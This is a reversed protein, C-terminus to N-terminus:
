CAAQLLAQSFETFDPMPGLPDKALEDIRRLAVADQWYMEQQFASVEEQTM